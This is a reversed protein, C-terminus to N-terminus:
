WEGDVRVWLKLAGDQVMYDRVEGAVVGNIRQGVFGRGVHALADEDFKLGYFLDSRLVTIWLEIMGDGITM